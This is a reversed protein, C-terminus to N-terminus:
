DNRHLAHAVETAGDDQPSGSGDFISTLFTMFARSLPSPTREAHHTLFFRRKLDIGTIALIQLHGSKVDDKVAISPLVAVGVQNKVAQRVAETSGMEAVINFDDLTHGTRHLSQEFARLTGSGKERVIFPETKVTQLSVESRGSWKHGAAVALYSEDTMLTVQTLHGQQSQAGVIGLEIEGCTILELVRSTDAITLAIRVEPYKKNFLGILRPLLYAGPITSGGICLRGKIEGLFEAMASQTEANLNLLRQAYRYLLEGARTPLTQKALRDVLQTNFHNELEKIHSSVTPQSLHVAEGAKSFSKLEVVKCFIKLQWLDMLVKVAGSEIARTGPLPPHKHTPDISDPKSV